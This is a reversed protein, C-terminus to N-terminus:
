LTEHSLFMQVEPNVCIMSNEICFYFYKTISVAKLCQLGVLGLEADDENKIEEDQEGNGEEDGGTVNKLLRKGIVKGYNLIGVLVYACDSYQLLEDRVTPASTMHMLTYLAADESSNSTWNYYLASSSSEKNRLIRLLIPLLGADLIAQSAVSSADELQVSKSVEEESSSTNQSLKSPRTLNKLAGLCWRATEPFPCDDGGDGTTFKVSSDGGKRYRIGLKTEILGFLTSLLKRPTYHIGEPSTLPIPGLRNLQTTTLSAM